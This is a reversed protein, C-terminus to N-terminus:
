DWNLNLEELITLFKNIMKEKSFRKSHEVSKLRL